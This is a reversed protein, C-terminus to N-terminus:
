MNTDFVYTKVANELEREEYNANKKMWNSYSTEPMDGFEQVYDKHPIRRNFVGKEILGRLPKLKDKANASDIGDMVSHLWRLTYEARSANSMYKVIPSRSYDRGAAADAIAEAEEIIEAYEAMEEKSVHKDGLNITQNEIVNGFVINIGNM